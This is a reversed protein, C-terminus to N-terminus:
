KENKVWSNNDGDQSDVQKLVVTLVTGWQNTSDILIIRPQNIIIIVLRPEEYMIIFFHMNHMYKKVSVKKRHGGCGDQWQWRCGNLYWGHPWSKYDVVSLFVSSILIFITYDKKTAEHCGDEDDVRVKYFLFVLCPFAEQWQKQLPHCLEKEAGVRAM